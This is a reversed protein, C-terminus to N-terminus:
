RRTQVFDRKPTEKKKASLRTNGACLQNTVTQVTAHAIEHPTSSKDTM